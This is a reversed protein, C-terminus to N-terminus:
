ETAARLILRMLAGRTIEDEWHDANWDFSPYIDRVEGRSAPSYSDSWSDPPSGIPEGMSRARAAILWVHRKLLINYPKFEGDPYGELLSHHRGYWAAAYQEFDEDNPSIDVFPKASRDFFDWGQYRVQHAADYYLVIEFPMMMAGTWPIYAQVSYTGDDNMTARDPYAWSGWSVDPIFWVTGAGEYTGTITAESPIGGKISQYPGPNVTVKQSGDPPPPTPPKEGDAVAAHWTKVQDKSFTNLRSRPFDNVQPTAAYAWRHHEAQNEAPLTDWSIGISPGPIGLTCLDTWAKWHEPYLKLWVFWTRAHAAEHLVVENLLPGSMPTNGPYYQRIFTEGSPYRALGIAAGMDDRYVYDGERDDVLLLSGTGDEYWYPPMSATFKMTNSTYAQWGYDWDWLSTELANVAAERQAASGGTVVFRDANIAQAVSTLGMVLLGALLLMLLLKKM